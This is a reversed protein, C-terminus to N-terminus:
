IVVLHIYFSTLQKQIVWRPVFKLFWIMTTVGEISFTAGIRPFLLFCISAINRTTLVVLPVKVFEPLDMGIADRVSQPDRFSQIKGETVLESYWQLSYM